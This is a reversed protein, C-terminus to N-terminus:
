PQAAPARGPAVYFVGTASALIRDPRDAAVIYGETQATTSGTHIVHARCIVDTDLPVPLSYNVTMTVTPTMQNYIVGTTIGMTTDLIAAVIGGHVNKAPNAMWSATHFRLDLRLEPGNCSELAPALRPGLSEPDQLHVRKELNCVIRQTLEETTFHFRM